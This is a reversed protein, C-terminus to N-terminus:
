GLASGVLADTAFHKQGAIRAASVGGAVGYALLKTMPGPYEHAIVSAIAWSVAAHDSPFSTGGQFFRGRGDGTFPRDRGTAYKFATTDLFADIAAEGSLLGTERQEEDHSFHGLLFMGGGAGVMAALGANSATSAHSVTTSTTHVHKEVDTDSALLGAGAFALPVTWRWQRQTMHFPTSWFDKEDLFM